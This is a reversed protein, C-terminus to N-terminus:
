DVQPRSGWGRPGVTRIQQDNAVFRLYDQDLPDKFTGNAVYLDRWGDNDLDAFLAGWSWDTADLGTMRGIEAFRGSGDNELLVNRGFQHHYGATEAARRTSWTEFVTKSRYREPDSPLMESVFIEPAGDGTVDALDAGM